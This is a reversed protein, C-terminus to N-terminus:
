DLLIRRVEEISGPSENSLHIGPLARESQVGVISSSWERVVLDTPLRGLFEFLITHSQLGTDIPLQDLTLLVPSKPSLNGISNISRNRFINDKFVDPGNASTVEEIIQTQETLPRIFRSVLRGFPEDAMPSGRHPTAIFVARKVFPVPKFILAETLLAKTQPSARFRDHPVKFVADWLSMGSDTVMFRTLNGGMSHGVLVMKHFAPDQGFKSEAEYLARRLRSASIPIPRGTPYAFLLFQYRDSIVPDNRLENIMQVFAAPNSSLGHVFVVPIKGPQYPRLM